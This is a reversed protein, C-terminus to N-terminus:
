GMSLFLTSFSKVISILHDITIIQQYDTKLIEGLYEIIGVSNEKKFKNYKHLEIRFPIYEYIGTRSFVKTDNELIKCIAYKIFSSKGAGPKGIVVIHNTGSFLDTFNIQDKENLVDIFVRFKDFSRHDILKIIEQADFYNALEIREKNEISHPVKYKPYIFTETKNNIKIYDHIHVINNRASQRSLFKPYVFLRYLEIERPKITSVSLGFFNIRSFNSLCSEKYLCKFKELDDLTFSKTIFVDSFQQRLIEEIPGIKEFDNLELIRRYIDGQDIIHEKASFKIKKNVVRDIVAQTYHSQKQTLIYVM